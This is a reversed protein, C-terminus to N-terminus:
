NTFLFTKLLRKFVLINNAEKIQKPLINWLTASSTGLLRKGYRVTRNRAPVISTTSASRLNRAPTYWNILKRLYLPATGHLCKFTLILIKYQCRKKIPLWHLATLVPTIHTRRSTRSIVRAASNHALQMRHIDKLPLGAYISNCYDLRSIVLAQVLTRVASDTLYPRIFNIRRINSYASKCTNTIQRQLNLDSDFIVGLITVCETPKVISDGVQMSYKNTDNVNFLILETKDQNLQLSNTSMWSCIDTTCIEIRRIAVNM